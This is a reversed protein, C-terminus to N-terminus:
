NLIAPWNSDGKTIFNDKDAMWRQHIDKNYNLYLKGNYVEWHEPDGSAISGQAAAWSCYGGYQPAFKEPDAVFKDLNDKSAFLWQAGMYETSFKKNGKVPKSESFYATVDYGGAAKNSFLSTYIPDEAAHSALSIAFMSVVMLPFLVIKNIFTKMM